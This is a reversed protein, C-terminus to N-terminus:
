LRASLTVACTLILPASTAGDEGYVDSLDSFIPVETAQPMAILPGCGGWLQLQLVFTMSPPLVCDLPAVQRANTQLGENRHSLVSLLVVHVELVGIGTGGQRVGLLCARNALVAEQHDLAAGTLHPGLQATPRNCLCSAM